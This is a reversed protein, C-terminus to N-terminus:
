KNVAEKRKKCTAMYTAIRKIESEKTRIRGMNGSSIKARHEMSLTRGSLIKSLKERTAASPRIGLHAIRNANNWEPSHKKGLHALIMKRRHEESKPKGKMAASMKKKAEDSHHRGRMALSLKLKTERSLHKGYGHHKDGCRGFMPNKIGCLKGKHAASLKKRTEKSPFLGLSGEGGATMNYGNPILSGFLEIYKKELMLVNEHFLCRDVIDWAFKEEGYKRIAAHLIMNCKNLRANSLHSSKRKNLKSSTKGIYIKGNVM